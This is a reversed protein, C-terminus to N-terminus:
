QKPPDAFFRREEEQFHQTLRRQQIEAVREPSNFALLYLRDVEAKLQAIEDDREHFGRVWGALYVDYRPNPEPYRFPVPLRTDVPGEEHTM